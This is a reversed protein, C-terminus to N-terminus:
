VVAAAHARGSVTHPAVRMAASLMPCHSSCAGEYASAASWKGLGEACASGHADAPGDAGTHQDSCHTNVTCGSALKCAHFKVSPLMAKVAELPFRPLRLQPEQYADTRCPLRTFLKLEHYFVVEM